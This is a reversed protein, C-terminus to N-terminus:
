RSISANTCAALYTTVSLPPNDLSAKKKWFGETMTIFCINQGSIERCPGLRVAVAVFRIRDKCCETRQLARQPREIGTYEPVSM